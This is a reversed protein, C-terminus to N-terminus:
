PLSAATAGALLFALGRAKRNGCPVRRGLGLGPSGKKRKALKCCSLGHRRQTRASRKKRRMPGKSWFSQRELLEDVLQVITM